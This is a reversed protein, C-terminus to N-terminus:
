DRRVWDLIEERKTFPLSGFDDPLHLSIWRREAPSIDGLDHGYLSRAQHPLKIQFYGESLRYRTEIRRLIDFSAVSRPVREGQLGRWDCDLRFPREPCAASQPLHDPQDPLPPCEGAGAKLIDTHHAGRLIGFNKASFSTISSRTQAHENRKERAVTGLALPFLPASKVFCTHHTLSALEPVM